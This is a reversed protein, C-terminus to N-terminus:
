CADIAAKGSCREPNLPSSSSMLKPKPQAPVSVASATSSLGGGRLLAAVHGGGICAPEGEHGAADEGPQTCINRWVEGVEAIKRKEASGKTEFPDDDDDKGEEPSVRMRKM